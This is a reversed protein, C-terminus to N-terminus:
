SSKLRQFSEQLILCQIRLIVKQYLNIVNVFINRMLLLSFQKMWVYKKM